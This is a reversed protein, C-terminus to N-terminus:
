NKSVDAYEVTFTVSGKYTGAYQLTEGTKLAIDLVQTAAVNSGSAASGFTAAADTAALEAGNKKLVVKAVNTGAGSKDKLAVSKDSNDVGATIKIEKDAELKYGEAIGLTIKNDSNSTYTASAPITVSYSIPEVYEMSTDGKAAGKGDTATGDTESTQGITTDMAMVPMCMGVAMVGALGMAVLNKRKM